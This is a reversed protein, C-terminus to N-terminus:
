AKRRHRAMVEESLEIGLGPEAPLPLASNRAVIPQDVWRNWGMGEWGSIGESTEYHNVTFELYRTNPVHAMVHVLAMCTVPGYNHPAIPVYYTEAMYAIKRTESIGGTWALDPMIIDCVHSELLERFRSRGFLREGTCIPTTTSRAVKAMAAANDPGTPEEIFMVNFEELAQACKIASPVDWYAHCDMCIELRDGVAERVWRLTDTAKRIAQLSIYKGMCEDRHRAFVDTKFAKWGNDVLWQARDMVARREIPIGDMGGSFYVPVRDRCKGGLLQYIPVGLAKGKIDWLAVDIASMARFEAGQQGHYSSHHFMQQFIGEIDSPDQGILGEGFAQICAKAAGKMGHYTEGLGTIGEDTHILVWYYHAENKEDPEVVEVQTIKM